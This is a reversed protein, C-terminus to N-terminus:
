KPLNKIFKVIGNKISKGFLVISAFGIVGTLYKLVKPVGGKKPEPARKLRIYTDQQIDDYMKKADIKSYYSHKNIVDPADIVGVLNQTGYHMNHNPLPKNNEVVM